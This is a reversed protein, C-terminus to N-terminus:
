QSHFRWLYIHCNLIWIGSNPTLSKRQTQLNKQGYKNSHRRINNINLRALWFEELKGKPMSRWLIEFREFNGFITRSLTTMILRENKWNTHIRRKNRYTLQRFNQKKLLTHFKSKKGKSRMTSLPRYAWWFGLIPRNKTKVHGRWTYKINWFTFDCLGQTKLKRESNFM